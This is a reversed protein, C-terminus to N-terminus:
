YEKKTKQVIKILLKMVFYIVISALVALACMILTQKFDLALLCIASIFILLIIGAIQVNNADYYMQKIKLIITLIPKTM